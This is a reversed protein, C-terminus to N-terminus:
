FLTMPTVCLSQARGVPEAPAVSIVVVDQSIRETATLEYHCGSAKGTDDRVDISDRPNM